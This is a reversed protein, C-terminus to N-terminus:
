FGVLRGLQFLLTAACWAVGCQFAVIFCAWRAGLERNIAAVAAMCPTYLLTFVLFSAAMLPTFNLVSGFDAATAHTLVALTSVVAEKASFGTILATAARWDTFGMPAFIPSMARGLTGLLSQGSDAAVNFQYNFTQLFWIIMTAAFIVTFARTLFDRARSWMLLLVSRASPMRYNPLEMVFPVPNGKYTTRKIAYGCIFGTLMGLIYLSLVVLTEYGHFFAAAFASYIPVKASCSMFPTLMMTIKRDRSSSLTRTAMVAPVTCGFGLLLPVFSRGSLGIKRLPKDMMFAVRAMYGSDELLSLFFFLVMIVPLFSLVSGLGAFVGDIVLSRMVENIEFRLMLASVRESIFGIGSELLGSLFDGIAGFTLWLIALMIVGFLPLGLHKHTLVSDLRLSRDHEKLQPKKVTRACLRGIFAYRMDAMAANRDAGLEKEMESVSHEITELENKNLGLKEALASDGEVMKTAAFRPPLGLLAAHDEVMHTISHICRHLAGSCFDLRAPRRKRSAVAIAQEMLEALGERKVASIPVAPVGLGEGFKL